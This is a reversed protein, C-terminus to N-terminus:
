AVQIAAFNLEIVKAIEKPDLEIQLGIQGASVIISEKDLASEDIITPLVKKMGIPSCGGRVYGTVKTLDKLHLLSVKKLDFAAATKKMDLESEIPVVGVYHEHDSELVITKYIKEMSEGIQEDLNIGADLKKKDYSHVKYPIKKQDLIRMANTKKIKM